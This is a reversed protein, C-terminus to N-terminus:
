HMNDRTLCTLRVSGGPWRSGNNLAENLSVLPEYASIMLGAIDPPLYTLPPYTSWDHHYFTFFVLSAFILEPTLFTQSWRNSPIPSWFVDWFWGGRAFLWSPKKFTSSSAPFSVFQGLEPHQMVVFYTLVRSNTKPPHSTM